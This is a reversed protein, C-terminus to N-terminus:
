GTARAYAAAPQPPAFPGDQLVSVHCFAMVIWFYLGMGGVSFFVMEGFNVLLCSAMMWFIMPDPHRVVPAFLAFLLLTVLFAGPIGTEELVASPMFGKEVSAGIPLGMFEQSVRPRLSEPDSPIGFGIGTMPASRFNAMSANMRYGRSAVLVDSVSSAADDKFMFESVREQLTTWQLGAVIVLLFAGAMIAPNAIARNVSRGWTNTKFLMGIGVVLGFALLAAALSTRSLSLYMGIWGLLAGIKVLWSRDGRFLYLSSLMATIPALVPGYTQPHSLIGQFGAENRAYGGPLLFMPLSAFIIFIGLTYFWSLWYDRLQRTQYLSTLAASAGVTFTAVKLVSVLPFASWLLSFFFVTVAFVLLPNLVKPFSLGGLLGVWVLRLLAALLVLWRGLSIDVRAVLILVALVTLAEVTQRPGRFVYLAIPICIITGLSYPAFTTLILVGILFYLWPRLIQPRVWQPEYSGVIPPKKMRTQKSDVYM